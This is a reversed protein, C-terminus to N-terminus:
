FDDADDAPAAAARQRERFRRYVLRAAIAMAALFVAVVAIPAWPVRGEEMGQVAADTGVVLIVIGPIKCLWSWVVFTRLRLVTLGFLYNLLNGPVIPFLRSTAVIIPGHEATMRDLRRFKPKQKLRQVLSGRAVYRGILFSATAGLISGLSAIAVGFVAGFLAGSAIKLASQPVLCISAVVYFGLYLLPGLLGQDRAWQRMQSTNEAIEGPQLLAVVAAILAIVIAPRWAGRLAGRSSFADDDDHPAGEAQPAETVARSPSLM